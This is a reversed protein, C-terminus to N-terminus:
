WRRHLCGRESFHGKKRVDGWLSCRLTSIIQAISVLLEQMQERTLSDLAGFPEDMLLIDPETALARAIGVRQRMGGSVAGDKEFDDRNLIIEL